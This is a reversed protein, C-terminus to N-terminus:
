AGRARKGSHEPCLCYGSGERNKQESKRNIVWGERRAERVCRGRTSGTFEAVPERHGRYQHEPHDCYLHLSYCGIEGM